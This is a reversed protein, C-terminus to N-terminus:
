ALSGGACGIDLMTKAGPVTQRILASVVANRLDFSMTGGLYSKLEGDLKADWYAPSSHSAAPAAHRRFRAVLKDLRARYYILRLTRHIFQNSFM